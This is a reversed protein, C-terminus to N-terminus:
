LPTSIPLVYPLCIMAGASPDYDCGFRQAAVALDDHHVMSAPDAGTIAVEGAERHGRALSDLATVDNSVDALAATGSAWVEVVFNADIPGRDIGVLVEAHREGM